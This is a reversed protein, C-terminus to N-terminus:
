SACATTPAIPARTRAQLLTNVRYHYTERTDSRGLRRSGTAAVSIAISTPPRLAPVTVTTACWAAEVGSGTRRDSDDACGSTDAVGVDSRVGLAFVPALGLAVVVGGDFVVVEVEVVVFRGVVVFRASGGAVFFDDGFGGFGGGGDLVEDDGGCSPM